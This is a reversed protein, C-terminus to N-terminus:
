KRGFRRGRWRCFNFSLRQLTNGRKRCPAFCFLRPRSLLLAAQERACLSLKLREANALNRAVCAQPRGLTSRSGHGRPARCRGNFRAQGARHRLDLRHQIATTSPSHARKL